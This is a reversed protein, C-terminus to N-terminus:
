PSLILTNRCIVDCASFAIYEPVNIGDPVVKLGDCIVRHLLSEASVEQYNDFVITSPSKLRRFLAEFFNKSFICIGPLYEPTLLPLPRRHRPAAKKVALGMYYFFSAPDSDREDVQYWLAANKREALWSAVLTTKGAGAPAQVWIAPKEIAQDLLKFLRDRTLVVPLRPGTIKALSLHSEERKRNTGTEKSAIESDDLASGVISGSGNSEKYNVFVGGVVFREVGSSLPPRTFSM